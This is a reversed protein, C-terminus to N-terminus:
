GCSHYMQPYGRMYSNQVVLELQTCAWVVKGNPAYGPRDGEGVIAQKWGGGQFYTDLFPASFRQRWQVYFEEGEGFRVSFDDSFNAFWSGSTGSGSRSPITFKLACGSVAVTCDLVPLLESEGNKILGMPGKGQGSGVAWYSLDPVQDASDFSVCRVVAPDACRREFSRRRYARMDDDSLAARAEVPVLPAPAPPPGDLMDACATLLAPCLVILWRATKHRIAKLM